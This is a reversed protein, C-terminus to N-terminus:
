YPVKSAVLQNKIAYSLQRLVVMFREVLSLPSCQEFSVLCLCPIKWLLLQCIVEDQLYLHLMFGPLALMSRLQLCFFIKKKNTLQIFTSVMHMLWGVLLWYLRCYIIHIFCFCHSIWNTVSDGWSEGENTASCQVQFNILSRTLSHTVWPFM